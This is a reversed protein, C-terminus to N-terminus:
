KLRRNLRVTFPDGIRFLFWAVRATKNLKQYKIGLLGDLGGTIHLGVCYCDHHGSRPIGYPCSKRFYHHLRCSIQDVCTGWTYWYNFSFGSLLSVPYVQSRHGVIFVALFHADHGAHRRAWSNRDPLAPHRDPRQCSNGEGECRLAHRALLLFASRMHGQASWVVSVAEGYVLSPRLCCWM